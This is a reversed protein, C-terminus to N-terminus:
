SEDTWVIQGVCDKPPWETIGPYTELLHPVKVNVGTLTGVTSNGADHGVTGAALHWQVM